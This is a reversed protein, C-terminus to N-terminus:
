TMVIESLREYISDLALLEDFVEAHILHTLRNLSGASRRLSLHQTIIVRLALLEIQIAFAALLLKQRIWPAALHM